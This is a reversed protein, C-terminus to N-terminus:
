RHGRDTGREGTATPLDKEVVRRTLLLATAEAAVQDAANHGRRSTATTTDPTSTDPQAEGGGRNM